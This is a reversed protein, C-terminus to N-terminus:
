ANDEVAGDHSKQHRKLGNSDYFGEECVSCKYPREGTHTRVHVTLNGKITFRKACYTCSYPKEGTHTRM